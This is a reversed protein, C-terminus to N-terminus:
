RPREASTLAPMLAVDCESGPPADPNPDYYGGPLICMDDDASGGFVLNARV